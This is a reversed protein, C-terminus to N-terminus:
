QVLLKIAHEITILSNATFNDAEQDVLHHQRPTTNCWFLLNISPVTRTYAIKAKVIILSHRWKSYLNSYQHSDNEELWWTMILNYM